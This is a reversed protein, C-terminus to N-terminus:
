YMRKDVVSHWLADAAKAYEPKGTLAALDTVGCYLYGARVAHGVADTQQIVPKQDQAYAGWSPTRRGRQDVFYQSLSLYKQDGTTRYLRALALEIEEHGSTDHRQTAAPGFTDNLFNANKGGADFLSRKGTAQFYAVGAEQLLGMVYTEHSEKENIW